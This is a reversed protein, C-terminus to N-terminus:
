WHRLHVRLCRVEKIETRVLLLPQLSPKIGVSSASTPTPGIWQLPDSTSDWGRRLRDSKAFGPGTHSPYLPSQFVELRMCRVALNRSDVM